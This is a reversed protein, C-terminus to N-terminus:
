RSEYLEASMFDTWQLTAANHFQTVYNLYRQGLLETHTFSFANLWQENTLITIGRLAM